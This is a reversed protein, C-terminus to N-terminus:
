GKNFYLVEAEYQTLGKFPCSDDKAFIWNKADSWHALGLAFGCLPTNDKQGALKTHVDLHNCDKCDENIEQKKM